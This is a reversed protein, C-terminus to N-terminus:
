MIGLARIPKIQEILMAQHVPAFDRDPPSGQRVFRYTLREELLTCKGHNSFHDAQMKMMRSDDEPRNMVLNIAACLLGIYECLSQDAQHSTEISGPQNGIRCHMWQFINQKGQEIDDADIFIKAPVFTLYSAKFVHQLLKM